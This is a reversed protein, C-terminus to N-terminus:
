IFDNTTEKHSIITNKKILLLFKRLDSSLIYTSKEKQHYNYNNKNFRIM